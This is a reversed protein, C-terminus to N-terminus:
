TVTITAAAAHVYNMGAVSTLTKTIDTIYQQVTEM